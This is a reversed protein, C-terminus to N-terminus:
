WAASKIDGACWHKSVSFKEASGRKRSTILLLEKQTLATALDRQMAHRERLQLDM